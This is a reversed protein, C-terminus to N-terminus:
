REAPADGRQRRTKKERKRMLTTASAGRRQRCQQAPANANDRQHLNAYDRQAKADGRQRSAFACAATRALRCKCVRRASVVARARAAPSTSFFHRQRSSAGFARRHRRSM